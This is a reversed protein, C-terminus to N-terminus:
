GAALDGGEDADGGEVAVAAGQAAGAGGPAAAGGDPGDEVHGGEGGDAVVRRELGEIGAEAGGAHRGLDGEDGAAAREEDDEIGHEGM